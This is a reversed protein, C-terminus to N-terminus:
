GSCGRLQLRQGSRIVYPSRLGNSRALEDPGACGHRRAISSLTDGSKVRYSRAAVPPSYPARTATAPVTPKSAAMLSVALEARPGTLCSAQYLPLVVAPVQLETGAPIATHAEYRPNLNRLPRFWGDRNGANGLCIALENMSPPTGGSDPSQCARCGRVSVELGYRDPHMFLWSAALVMAVYDRTEPPLQAYVKGSELIGQRRQRSVAPGM